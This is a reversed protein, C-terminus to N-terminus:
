SPPNASCPLRDELSFLVIQAGPQDGYVKVPYQSAIAADDKWLISTLADETSRMLKTTDPKSTHYSPADDKLQGAHKGTRYHHKPRPMTFTIQLHLPGGFTEGIWAQRAALAVVARWNKTKEGGADVINAHKMGPRWFARKSGGPAPIGPVHFRILEKM